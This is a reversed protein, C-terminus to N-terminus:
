SAAPGAPAEPVERRFGPLRLLAIGSAPSTREVYFTIGDREEVAQVAAHQRRWALSALLAFGTAVGPVQPLLFAVGGALLTTALLPWLRNLLTLGPRLEPLTTTARAGAMARQIAGNPREGRGLWTGILMAVLWWTACVVALADDGEGTAGAITAIALATASAGCLLVASRLLEVFRM